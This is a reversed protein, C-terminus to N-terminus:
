LVVLESDKPEGAKSPTTSLHSPTTAPLPAGALLSGDPPTGISRPQGKPLLPQHALSFGVRKKAVDYVTLYRRLFPEGLIFLKPGLPPQMDTPLLLSRCMLTSGNNPTTINIPAPRSYDEVPLSVVTGGLDFDISHGPVNRCDIASPDKDESPVPRALLRHMSRASLRPVGLLSTGTDLVARCDGHECDELVVGGIRIQQIQVLWHGLEALAVPAWEIDSLARQKDHGGFTIMSEGDESQSLFVSFQPLMQPYQSLMEGFFSFQPKLRLSDLGLGMVGDFAFHSFPDETMETALVMRMTVCGATPGGLCVKDQIFEGTVKGTGFSVVVQDREKDNVNLPSGDYKIDVASTSAVRDYRRHKTCAESRCSSRPLIVHGSGTDFVVTFTQAPMGAQIEGFYATKYAITKNDKMVPVYQKQLSVSLLFAASDEPASTVEGQGESVPLSYLLSAVQIKLTLRFVFTAISGPPSM